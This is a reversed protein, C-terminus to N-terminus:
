KHWNGAIIESTVPTIHHIQSGGLTIFSMKVESIIIVKNKYLM